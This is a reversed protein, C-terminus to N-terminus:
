SSASRDATILLSRQAVSLSVFISGDGPNYEDLIGTAEVLRERDESSVDTCSGFAEVGQSKVRQCFEKVASEVEKGEMTLYAEFASRLKTEDEEDEILEATARQVDEPLQKIEL